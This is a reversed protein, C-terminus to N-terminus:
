RTKTKSKNRAHRDKGIRTLNTIDFCQVWIEKIDEKCIMTYQLDGIWVYEENNGTLFNTKKLWKNYVKEEQDPKNYATTMYHQDGDVMKFTFQYLWIQKPKLRFSQYKPYKIKKKNLKRMNNGKQVVEIIKRAIQGENM